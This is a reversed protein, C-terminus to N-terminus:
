EATEMLKREAQSQSEPWKEWQELENVFDGSERTAVWRARPLPVAM